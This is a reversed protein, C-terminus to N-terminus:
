GRGVFRGAVVDDITEALSTAPVDKGLMATVGQPTRTQGSSLVVVPISAVDPRRAREELFEQGNMNPMQMDLLIVDVTPQVDLVDLADRGDCAELVEHGEWELTTRVAERYASNDEVILVRSM